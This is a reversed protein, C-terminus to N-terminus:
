LGRLTASFFASAGNLLWALSKRLKEEFDNLGAQIRGLRKAARRAQTRATKLQMARCVFVGMRQPSEGAGVSPPRFLIKLPVFVDSLRCGFQAPFRVFVQRGLAPRVAGAVFTSESTLV